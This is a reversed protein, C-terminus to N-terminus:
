VPPILPLSPADPEAARCTLSTRGTRYSVCRPAREPDSKSSYRRQNPSNIGWRSRLVWTRRVLFNSMTTQTFSTNNPMHDYALYRV